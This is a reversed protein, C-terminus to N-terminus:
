HGALFVGYSKLATVSGAVGWSLGKCVIELSLVTNLTLAAALGQRRGLDCRASDGPGTRKM